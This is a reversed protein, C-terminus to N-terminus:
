PLSAILYYYAIAVGLLTGGVVPARRAFLLLGLVAPILIPTWVLAGNNSSFLVNSLAPSTWNWTSSRYPSLGLPNGFVIQRAIFMPLLAVLIGAGCAFCSKLPTWMSGPYATRKQWAGRCLLLFDVAPLLLFVFSAYYVELMLGAILGLAIWQWLTRREHTHHWHWLFLAVTFAAHAHAWSPDVYMYALLSSGFWIGLTALLAWREAFYSRALRFSLWLGLFGYLATGFAMALLYPRSFGDAPVQSGLERAALVGVHTIALFPAWLLAAGVPFYNYVHGTKTYHGM